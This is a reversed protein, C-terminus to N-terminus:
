ISADLSTDFHIGLISGIYNDRGDINGDLKLCTSWVKATVLFLIKLM